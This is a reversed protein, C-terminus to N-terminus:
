IKEVNINNTQECHPCIETYSGPSTTAPLLKRACKCVYGKLKAPNGAVFGNAPVDGIVVSGAAILALPGITIGCLITANAGISVGDKIITKCIEWSGSARPYLDNTFAVHPGIFVDNGITVGNYVSVLNQIKVNNGIIVGTDVYSSKGLIVNRGLKAGKRVHAFHWIKCGEELSSGEDVVATEHIFVSNM